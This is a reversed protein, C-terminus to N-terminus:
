LKLKKLIKLLYKANTKGSGDYMLHPLTVFYDTKIKPLFKLVCEWSCFEHKDVDDNSKAKLKGDGHYFVTIELKDGRDNSFEKQCEDCGYVRSTVLKKYTTPVDEYIAEKILM